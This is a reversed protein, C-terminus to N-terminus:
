NVAVVRTEPLDEESGEEEMENRDPDDDPNGETIVFEAQVNSPDVFDDEEDDFNELKREEEM